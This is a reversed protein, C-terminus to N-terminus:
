VNCALILMDTAWIDGLIGLNSSRDHMNINDHPRSVQKTLIVHFCPAIVRTIKLVRTKTM